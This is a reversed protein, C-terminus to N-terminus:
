RPSVQSRVDGERTMKEHEHPLTFTFLTRGGILAIYQQGKLTYTISPARIPGGLTTSWLKAGTDADLAFFETDHAAFLLDGDTSLLGGLINQMEAGGSALITEWRLDGTTVDIARIAVTVPQNPARQFTSGGYVNTEHFKASDDDGKFYISAADVAPVFMLHRRPDFSPTWWNTAGNAQPWVLSGSKSPVSGPLQIPHGDPTFGSAWTQKAFAKASLFQGTRRDLQYFFGNRNADLLVPRIEGHWPIETLIPQQTADWDHSDSPSFQYYWRLKGTQLELAVVSNAYLNIGPRAEPNYVPDPNGTGWYVLGLSPDYAGTTWTAAGGHKWSDNGWTENGPEGPGPVVDFKWLLHGDAASYAAIFGRIGYDGGAVGVVIRDEIPLPAGTMSYGKHWDEVVTDWVKKGTVADLAVLHADLTEVFVHDNLVAVGRNQAGCCLPIESVPAPHKFEWLVSGNRVDLATVSGTAGTVFMRGRTVIPTSELASADSTLQAAWALRMQGVNNRTIQSQPGHRHGAYDRSYLLWDESPDADRLTDPTVLQFPPLGPNSTSAHAFDEEVLKRAYSYVQWIELDSLPQATMVTKPRGWKLTSFFTWDTMSGLSKILNPGTRGAANEGHCGACHQGYLRGGTEISPRDFHMNTVSANVNPIESLGEMYVPSGPRLWKLLLFFPIEPVKGTVKAKVVGVRWAAEHFLLTAAGLSLMFLIFGALCVWLVRRISKMAPSYDSPVNNRDETEETSRKHGGVYGFFITAIKQLPGLQAGNSL